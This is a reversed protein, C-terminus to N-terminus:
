ENESRARVRKLAVVVHGAEQAADHLIPKEAYVETEDVREWLTEALEAAVEELQAYTMDKMALQVVAPSNAVQHFEATKVADEIDDTYYTGGGPSRVCYEGDKKSLTKGTARVRAKADKLTLKM